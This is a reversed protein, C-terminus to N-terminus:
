FGVGIMTAARGAGGGSSAQQRQHQQPRPAERRRTERRPEDRKAAKTSAPKAAVCSTGQATEGRPCLTPCTLAAQKNLESVLEPTVKVNNTPRKKVALYRSLGTRTADNMAGTAAGGYCNIRALETQASKILTPTNITWSELKATVQPKLRECSVEKAFRKLDEVSADEGSKAAIVDFRESESKCATEQAAAAEAKKREAEAQRAVRESELRLKEAEAAAKNRAAEEAKRRAEEARREAEAAKAKQAAEAAAARREEDERRKTAEAEKRRREAEEREARGAAERERAAQELVDLKAQATVALTSDPYRYIFSKIATIDGTDKVKEWDILERTSPGRSPRPPVAAPGLSAVEPLKKLQERALEAYFGTKHTSLFVEWAKRSGIKEVLDYDAKVDAAAPTSVGTTEAPAAVLSYNGGGLSGYVFPEQRGNTTKMVEDKVRGFALRLDLGPVTLHKLLAATFPSHNREGDEATSGAKAAYAILTDTSSPEVKGLGSSVARLAARSERRMKGAYPNDRCADLIIVRLKKAGDASLVLRDLPIAEDPADRDSALRADVPILYNTGGIEIGHGAYFLVAVDADMAIDEFKRIARKFDLNGVDLYTEITEFGAAKFMKAVADADRSPNPLQPVATYNSNGVVLAVRREALAQSPAMTVLVAVVLSAWGIAAAITLLRKM